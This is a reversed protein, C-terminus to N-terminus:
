LFPNRGGTSPAQVKFHDYLDSNGVANNRIFATVYRNAIDLGSSKVKILQDIHGTTYGPATDVLTNNQQWYIVADAEITGLTYFNAWLDDTENIKISGGYLYGLDSDSNFTWGNILEYETPTNAKIPVTDDMQGADDFLDMLWSYLANVTYRNTGTIHSIKKTGYNLSFDDFIAM